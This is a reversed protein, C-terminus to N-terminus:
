LKKLQSINKHKIVFMNLMPSVTQVILIKKYNLIMIMVFHKHRPFKQIKYVYLKDSTHWTGTKRM